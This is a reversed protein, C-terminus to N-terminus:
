SAEQSRKTVTAAYPFPDSAKKLWDLAVGDLDSRLAKRAPDDILNKMQYPDEQNDYLLWRGDEAVAYTYRPTRVARFLPANNMQREEAGAKSIHMVFASEPADVKGGRMAASLDKGACHDPVSIGALGCLTPYIDVTSFLMNIELGQATVGPYRIFFPVRCSEEWPLRKGMYTHSGMMDGHDSTYIVITNDAQGTAELTRLLRGFQKDVGSIHSYYGHQANRLGAASGLVGNGHNKFKVNPRMALTDANYLKMDEAPADGYPPHPPNWSVMLMWPKSDLKQQQLFQVAQDTMLDCNYGHPQ